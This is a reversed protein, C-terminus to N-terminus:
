ASRNKSFALATHAFVETAQVIEAIEVFEDVQHAIWKGGPGYVVSDLGGDRWLITGDTTGPVGGFVAPQGTVKEHGEVLARVVPSDVPTDAPPRDDIVTLELKVGSASAVDALLSEVDLLLAPHDVKPTTRIDIALVADAPIVNLQAISGGSLFTPTIWMHGLHEFSGLKAQFRNQLEALGATAHALASIPNAGKDPMAGHAMVGHADVRLRIAGKSVACIEGAEPEASIVGDVGECHGSAVFHKVGIMMEEEDCLVGLLIRGPFPGALEVARTAYIMAALGAKMDASGRGYLRGEVVEAAFPDHTWQSKDGATVVDTHGEFMLTPGPLGGEVTCIVNPRGPAVEEVVPEWGFKRMEAAVAEAAAAESLGEEPRNVSEIQVLERTFEVVRDHDFRLEPSM